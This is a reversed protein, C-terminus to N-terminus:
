LEYFTRLEEIQEKLPPILDSFLKKQIPSPKLTRDSVIDKKEVVVVKKNFVEKFIKLLDFKSLKESCLHFIPDGFKINRSIIRHIVKASTLTTVGNWFVNSYGSVKAEENELFWNLLNRRTGIEIGVISTRITITNHGSSEGLFKSVGYISVDDPIDHIKYGGTKGSFVCDTSINIVRSNKGECYLSLVKPLLSNVTIALKYDEFSDKPRILGLCNVIWDPKIKDLLKLLNPVFGQEIVLGFDRAGRRSKCARHTKYLEIDSFKSLYKVVANGLMGDSGLVLVRLM